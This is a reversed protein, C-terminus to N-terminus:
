KRTIEFIMVIPQKGDLTYAQVPKFVNPYNQPLAAFEESMQNFGTLVFYKLKTDNMIAGITTGPGYNRRNAHYQLEASVGQSWFHEDETMHQELWMGAERVPRYVNAKDQILAHAQPINEYAAGALVAAVLTLALVGHYPKVRKYIEM